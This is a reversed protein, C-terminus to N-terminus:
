LLFLATLSVVFIIRIIKATNDPKKISFTKKPKLSSKRIKKEISKKTTYSRKTKIIDKTLLKALYETMEPLDELLPTQVKESQTIKGTEVDIMNTNILFINGLKMVSGVIIKHVNLIKGLQVACEQTTCGTMQFSQEALLKEMNTRDVVNFRKTKVIATRLLDSVISSDMASVNKGYFEAVAINKKDQSYISIASFLIILYLSLGKKLM